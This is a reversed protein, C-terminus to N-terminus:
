SMTEAAGGEPCADQYQELKTRKRGVQPNRSCPWNHSSSVIAIEVLVSFVQGINLGMRDSKVLRLRFNADNIPRALFISPREQLHAPLCM